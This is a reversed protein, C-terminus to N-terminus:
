SKAVEEFLSESPGLTVSLHLARKVFLHATSEATFGM